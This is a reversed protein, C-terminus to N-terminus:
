AARNAKSHSKEKIWKEPNWYHHLELSVQSQTLVQNIRESTAAILIPAQSPLMIKTDHATTFQLYTADVIFGDETYVYYHGPPALVQSQPELALLRKTFFTCVGEVYINHRGVNPSFKISNDTFVQDLATEAKAELQTLRDSM